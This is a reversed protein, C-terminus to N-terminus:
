TRGGRMYHEPSKASAGMRGRAMNRGKHKRVNVRLRDLAKAGADSSGNGLMAVTDADIVYEGDSLMAPIDDSRGSGPGKVAFSTRGGKAYNFFRKEGNGGYAQQESQAIPSLNGYFGKPAPLSAGFTPQLKSAILQSANMGPEVGGSQDDDRGKILSYVALGALPIGFKNPLGKIGLFDKNWFNPQKAALPDKPPPPQDGAVIGPTQSAGGINQPSQTMATINSTSTTPNEAKRLLSSNATSPDQGGSSGGGGLLGGVVGGLLLRKLLGGDLGLFFEPQGTKPNTTPKGWMQQMQAFEDDNVHVVHSDGYRGAGKVADAKAALGGKAYRAVPAGHLVVPRLDGRGSLRISDPKAALMNSRHLIPTKDPM